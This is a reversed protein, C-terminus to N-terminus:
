HGSTVELHAIAWSVADAPLISLVAVSLALGLASFLLVVTLDNDQEYIIYM